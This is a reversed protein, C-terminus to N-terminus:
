FLRDIVDSLPSQSYNHQRFMAILLSLSKFALCVIISINCTDDAHRIVM